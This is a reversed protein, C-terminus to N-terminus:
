LIRGIYSSGSIGKIRQTQKLHNEVANQAINQMELKTLNINSGEDTDIISNYHPRIRHHLLRTRSLPIGSVNTRFDIRQLWQKPRDSPNNRWGPLGYITIGHLATFEKCIYPINDIRQGDLDVNKPWCDCWGEGQEDEYAVIALQIDAGHSDLDFVRLVFRGNNNVKSPALVTGDVLRETHVVVENGAERVIIPVEVAVCWSKIIDLLSLSATNSIKNIVIRIRTGTYPFTPRETFLQCRETLLYSRPERLKLSLGDINRADENWRPLKWQLIMLSLSSM